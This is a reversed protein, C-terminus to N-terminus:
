EDRTPDESFHYALVALVGFFGAMFGLTSYNFRLLVLGGLMTGLTSGVGRAASNVSMLTGRFETEQELTLSNGALFSSSAFLFLIISVGASFWFTGINFTFMTLIGLFFSASAVVRKRSLRGIIKGSVVNGLFATVAMGSFVLSALGAQVLFRERFSSIAFTLVNSLNISVFMAGVLCAVASRNALISMYGESASRRSSISAARTKPLGYYVLVLGIISIPLMFLLFVSRWGYQGAIYSVTPSGFLVSFPNGATAWGLASSRKESILAEGIITATMPFVIASSIGTLSYALILMPFSTAVYCGLASITYLLIGATLLTKPRYRTSLVGMALAFVIMIASYATSIQGTVGVPYGFSVGIDILLLGSIIIPVGSVVNATFLSILFFRSYGSV